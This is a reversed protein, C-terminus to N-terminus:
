FVARVDKAIKMHLVQAYHKQTVGINSHGLLKSVTEIPVDHNLMLTGFTKRGVHSSLKKHIGVEAAIEKLGANYKQNSIVPLNFNYKILLDKVNRLVPVVMKASKVKQRNIKIWLGDKEIVINNSNLRKLDAYALGTYCQVLFCDAIQQLRTELFRHKSIKELELETLYIIEHEDKFPISFEPPRMATFGRNNAFRISASILAIIKKLYGASFKKVNYLYHAFENYFYIDCNNVDININNKKHLFETIIETYREYKLVDNKNKLNQFKYQLHLDIIDTLKSITRKNQKQLYSKKISLASPKKNEYISTSYIRNLEHKIKIIIKNYDNELASTKKVCQKKQDWENNKLFIGTSVETRNKEVTIRCYLPMEGSRNKKSKNLWFLIKM